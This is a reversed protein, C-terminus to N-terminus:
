AADGSRPPRGLTQILDPTEAGRPPPHPHLQDLPERDRDARERRERESAAGVHAELRSRVRCM